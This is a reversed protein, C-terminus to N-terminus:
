VKGVNVRSVEKSGETSEDTVGVPMTTTGVELLVGAKDGESALEISRNGLVAADEKGTPVDDLTVIEGLVDEEPATVKRDELAAADLVGLSFKDVAADDDSNVKLGDELVASADETWAEVTPEEAETGSVVEVM